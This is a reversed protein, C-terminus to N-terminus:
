KALLWLCLWLLVVGGKVARDRLVGRNLYPPPPFPPVADLQTGTTPREKYCRAWLRVTTTADRQWAASM